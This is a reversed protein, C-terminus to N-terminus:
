IHRLASLRLAAGLSVARVSCRRGVCSQRDEFVPWGSTVPLVSPNASCHATILRNRCSDLSSESRSFYDLWTKSDLCLVTLTSAQHLIQSLSATSLVPCTSTPERRFSDRSTLQPSTVVPSLQSKPDNLSEVASHFHFDLKLDCDSSPPPM